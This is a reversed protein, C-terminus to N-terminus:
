MLEDLTEIIGPLVQYVDSRDVEEQLFSVYAELVRQLSTKMAVDDGIRKILIERIIGPDTKGSPSIGEMANDLDMSQKFARDLARLGAGGTSILTMDVDFLLLKVAYM